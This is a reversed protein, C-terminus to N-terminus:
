AWKLVDPPKKHGVFRRCGFRWIFAGASIFFLLLFLFWFSLYFLPRIYMQWKNRHCTHSQVIDILIDIWILHWRCYLNIRMNEKNVHIQMSINLADQLTICDSKKEKKLDFTGFRILFGSSFSLFSDYNIWTHLLCKDLIPVIIIVMINM